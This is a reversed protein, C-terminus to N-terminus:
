VTIDIWGDVANRPQSRKRPTPPAFGKIWFSDGEEDRNQQWLVWSATPLIIKIGQGSRNGSDKGLEDAENETGWPLNWGPRFTNGPGLTYSDLASWPWRPKDARYLAINVNTNNKFAAVKTVAM